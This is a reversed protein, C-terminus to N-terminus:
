GAHRTLTVDMWPRWGREGDLLEWHGTLTDGGDRFTGTFRDRASWMRCVLAGDEETLTAEYENPGDSGFYRTVYARREPDYGIIEAGEVREDGVRADVTHLLAYGGPLWSYTDIADIEAPADGRTTGRTRWRGVLAALREHESGVAAEGEDTSRFRGLAYRTGDPDEFLSWWGFHQREPPVPFRVGRASLERHTREPDASEFLLPSHPLREPVQPRPQGPPRPSLVLVPGPDPPAVEIWREDGYTEDRRLTFGIRETWFAKAREQDDVPVVVKGIGSIM